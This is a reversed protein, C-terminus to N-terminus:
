FRQTRNAPLPDSTKECIGRIIVFSNIFLTGNIRSISMTVSDRNLKHVTATARYFDKTVTVACDDQAYMAECPAVWADERDMSRSLYSFTTESLKFYLNSNGGSSFSADCKIFSDATAAASTSTIIAAFVFRLLGRRLSPQDM